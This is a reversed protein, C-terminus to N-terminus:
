IENAETSNPGREKGGDASEGRFIGRVPDGHFPIVVADRAFANKDRAAVGIGQEIPQRASSNKRARVVSGSEMNKFGAITEFQVHAAVVVLREDANVAVDGIRQRRIGNKVRKVLSRFKKSVARKTPGRAPRFVCEVSHFEDAM